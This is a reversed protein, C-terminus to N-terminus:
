LKLSLTRSQLRDKTLWVTHIVKWTLSVWRPKLLITDAKIFADYNIKM